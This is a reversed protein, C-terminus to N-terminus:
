FEMKNQKYQIATSPFLIFVLISFNCVFICLRSWSFKALSLAEIFLIFSVHFQSVCDACNEMVGHTILAPTWELDTSTLVCM